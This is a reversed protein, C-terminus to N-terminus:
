HYSCVLVWLCHHVFHAIRHRCIELPLLSEALAILVYICLFPLELQLAVEHVLALLNFEFDVLDLSNQGLYALSHLWCAM